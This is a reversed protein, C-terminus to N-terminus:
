VEGKKGDKTEKEAIIILRYSEREETPYVDLNCSRGEINVELHRHPWSCVGTMVKVAGGKLLIDVINVPLTFKTLEQLEELKEVTDKVIRVSEEGLKEKAEEVLQKIREQM